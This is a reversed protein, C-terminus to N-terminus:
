IKETSTWPLVRIAHRIHTQDGGYVLYSPAKNKSIKEWKLLTKLQDDTVTAGSKIEVPVRETGNDILVDIEDGLNDRWFYINSVLGKNFRRKLLESVVFNEFLSGRSPHISLHDANQINLLWTVLGTDYFYLKPTKVLRKGFNVFHPQLLYIIYSAELVAIWSRTTPLSIGCENALNSINLLQGTRAACLRLFRKFVSLEKVALMRRVDREIYSTVYGSFWQDPRLKKDYLPPYMGKYLLEDLTSPSRKASQLEKLCFPLLEVIGVRGALSETISAMLGFQQSGTLVFMGHQKKEDVILKIYSFLEPLRQAEDIIAGQPYAALFGRPDSRASELTDLADFSIYPKKPFTARVLTSKGSQRPGTVALVPFGKAMEALTSQATRKIM